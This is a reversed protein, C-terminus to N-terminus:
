RKHFKTAVHQVDSRITIMYTGSHLSSVPINIANKTIAWQHFLVLNGFTDSISIDARLTNKLGLVNVVNTAPNPFVKVNVPTDSRLAPSSRPNSADNQATGLQVGLLLVVLFVWKKM